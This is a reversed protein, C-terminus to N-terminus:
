KMRLSSNLDEALKRLRERLEFPDAKTIECRDRWYYGAAKEVQPTESLAEGLDRIDQRIQALEVEVDAINDASERVTRNSCGRPGHNREFSRTSLKAEFQDILDDNESESDINERLGSM